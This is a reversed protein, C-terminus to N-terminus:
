HRRIDSAHMETQGRTFLTSVLHMAYLLPPCFVLVWWERVLADDRWVPSTLAALAGFLFFVVFVSNETLLHRLHMQAWSTPERAGKTEKGKKTRYAEDSSYAHLALGDGLVALVLLGAPFAFFVIGGVLLHIFFAMPVWLMLYFLPALGARGCVRGVVAVGVTMLLLGHVQAFATPATTRIPFAAESTCPVRGGIGDSPNSLGPYWERVRTPRCSSRGWDAAGGAAGAAVLATAVFVVATVLGVGHAPSTIGLRGLLKGPLAAESSIAEEMMLSVIMGAVGFYVGAEFVVFLVEYLSVREDCPM